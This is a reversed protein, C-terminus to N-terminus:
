QGLCNKIHISPTYIYINNFKKKVDRMYICSYRRNTDLVLLMCRRRITSWQVGVHIGGYRDTWTPLAPVRSRPLLRCVVGTVSAIVAVPRMAACCATRPGADTFSAGHEREQSTAGQREKRKGHECKRSRLTISSRALSNFNDAHLSACVSVCSNKGGGVSLM